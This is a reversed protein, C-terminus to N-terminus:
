QCVGIFHNRYEKLPLNFPEKREIELVTGAGWPAGVTSSFIFCLSSDSILLSESGVNPDIFHLRFFSSSHLFRKLEKTMLPFLSQMEAISSTSFSKSIIAVEIKDIPFSLMKTAEFLCLDKDFANLHVNM